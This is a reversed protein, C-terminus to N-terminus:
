WWGNVNYSVSKAQGNGYAVGIERYANIVESKQVQERVTYEWVRNDIEKLRAAIKKLTPKVESFCAASPDIKSLLASAQNAGDSNQNASWISKAQLLFVTCDKDIKKKYIPPIAEMCKDYCEKCVEPVGTMKYIAEDYKNQSALAQSEKIIFDCKSNYYEIIKTKGKEIFTQYSPDNVKMNKLASIYAKTESEGVGKVTISHSAFKTGEIGDGVYLTINLTYAYMPPATSTIDKTLLIINATIIFRENNARGGMGAQTAIQSLKNFLMNKAIDPMNEIQPPVYAALVIRGIDDTKGAMNQGQVLGFSLAIIILLYFKTKKM